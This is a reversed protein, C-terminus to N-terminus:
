GHTHCLIYYEDPILYEDHHIIPGFQDISDISEIIEDVQTESHWISLELDVTPPEARAEDPRSHQRPM